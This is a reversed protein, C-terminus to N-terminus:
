HGYFLTFLLAIGTPKSLGKDTTPRCSRYIKPRLAIKTIPFSFSFCVLVFFLEVATTHRALIVQM